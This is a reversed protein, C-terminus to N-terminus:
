RIAALAPDLPEINVGVILSRNVSRFQLPECLSVQGRPLQREM